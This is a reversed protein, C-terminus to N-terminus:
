PQPEPAAASPQGPHPCEWDAWMDVWQVAAMSREIVRKDRFDLPVSGQIGGSATAPAASHAPGHASSSMPAPYHARNRPGAEIAKWWALATKRDLGRHWLHVATLVRLMPWLLSTAAGALFRSTREGIPSGPPAQTYRAPPFALYYGPCRERGARTLPRLLSTLARSLRLKTHTAPGPNSQPAPSPANQSGAVCPSSTADTHNIFPHPNM